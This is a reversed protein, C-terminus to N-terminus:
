PQKPSSYSYVIAYKVKATKTGLIKLIVLRRYGRYLYTKGDEIIMGLPDRMGEEKISHYLSIADRYRRRLQRDALSTLPEERWTKHYGKLYEAYSSNRMEELTYEHGEHVKSIYDYFAAYFQVLRAKKHPITISDRTRWLDDVSVNNATRIKTKPNACVRNFYDEAM